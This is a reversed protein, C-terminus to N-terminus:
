QSNDRVMSLELATKVLELTTQDFLKIRQPVSPLFHIFLTKRWQSHRKVMFIDCLIILLSM